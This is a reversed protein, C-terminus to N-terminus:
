PELERIKPVVQLYVIVQDESCRSSPIFEWKPDQKLLLALEIYEVIEAIHILSTSQPGFLTMCLMRRDGFLGRDLEEPSFSPLAKDRDSSITFM